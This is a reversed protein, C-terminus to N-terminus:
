RKQQVRLIMVTNMVALCQVRDQILRVWDVDESRIEKLIRELIKRGDGGLERLHDRGNLHESYFRYEQLM